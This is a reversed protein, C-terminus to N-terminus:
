PVGAGVSVLKEGVLPATPVLTVILPVPNVLTALTVNLPVAAVKETTEEILIVAVTGDPAVDPVMATMAAPPMAVLEVLKVTVPEVPGEIVLKEGPLPTTPVLTPSVPTLKVDADATLNLPVLAVNVTFELVLM